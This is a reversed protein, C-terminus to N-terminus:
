EITYQLDIAMESFSTWSTLTELETDNLATNFYQIQKTNGYFPSGGFGDDFGIRNLGTPVNGINDTAVENGNIWLAFDNQKYKIAIKNKSLINFSTTSFNFQDVGGVFGICQIINSTTTYFIIIRQTSTGNSISIVRNTLDNSLASIEVFLVGESSNILSSIGTKSATEAVRTVTSAVTPIYSTAYSGSELQAGWLYLNRGETFENGGITGRSHNVPRVSL